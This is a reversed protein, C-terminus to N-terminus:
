LAIVNVGVTCAATNTANFVWSMYTSVPWIRGVANPAAETSSAVFSNLTTTSITLNVAYNTNGLLGGGGTSTTAAQVLLSAIGASGSPFAFSTGLGSCFAFSSTVVVDTPFPSLISTTTAAATLPVMAVSSIKNTTNTAGVSSIGQVMVPSTHIEYGITFGVLLAVIGTIIYNKM